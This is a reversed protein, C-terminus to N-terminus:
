VVDGVFVLAINGFVSTHLYLSVIQNPTFPDPRYSLREGAGRWKARASYEGLSSVLTRYCSYYLPFTFMVLKSEIVFGGGDIGTGNACSVPDCIRAWFMQTAAQNGLGTRGM